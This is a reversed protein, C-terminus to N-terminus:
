INHSGTYILCTSPSQWSGTNVKTLSKFRKLKPQSKHRIHYYRPGHQWLLCHCGVGTRKGPFGWPRVLRTPQPGHPWYSSSEVSHSWKWKESEHMPSPFPLWKLIRAQLIVPIPSGPSSGNIPDCLTLCLQLSKAAAAPGHRVTM